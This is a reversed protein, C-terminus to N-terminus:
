PHPRHSRPPPITSCSLRLFSFYIAAGSFANYTPRTSRDVSASQKYLVGVSMCVSPPYSYSSFSVSSLICYQHSNRGAVFLLAISWYDTVRSCRCVWRGVSPGGSHYSIVLCHAKARYQVRVWIAFALPGSTIVRYIDNSIISGKIVIFTRLWLIMVFPLNRVAFM